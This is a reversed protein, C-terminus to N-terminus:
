SVKEFAKDIISSDLADQTCTIVDSLNRKLLVSDRFMMPSVFGLQEIGPTYTFDGVPSDLRLMGLNEVGVDKALDTTALEEFTLPRRISYMEPERFDAFVGLVNPQGVFYSSDFRRYYNEVENLFADTSITSFWNAGFYGEPYLDIRLFDQGFLRVAFQITGESSPPSEFIGYPTQVYILSKEPVWPTVKVINEDGGNQPFLIESRDKM